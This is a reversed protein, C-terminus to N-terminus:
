ARAPNLSGPFRSPHAPDRCEIRQHTSSEVVMFEIWSKGDDSKEGRWTFHTESINTYTAHTSADPNAVTERVLPWERPM